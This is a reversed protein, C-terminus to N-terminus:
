RCRASRRPRPCRRCGAPGRRPSSPEFSLAALNNRAVVQGWRDGTAKRIALADRHCEYASEYHGRDQHVKGLRSLSTAIARQDGDKTHRALAETIQVEAEAYRGMM